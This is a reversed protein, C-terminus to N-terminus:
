AIQVIRASIKEDLRKYLWHMALTGVSLFASLNLLHVYDVRNGYLLIQRYSDILFALPHFTLFAQRLALDEIERVDWFVGSSFLLFLIGMNILIRMDYVFIVLIAVILGVFVGLLLQTLLVAFITLWQMSPSYGLALVLVLLVLVAPLQKYANVMVQSYPFIIKSVRTSALIKRNQFLSESSSSLTKSFWLFSIKGCLLFEVFNEGGRQLLLGFIVYFAFVFLLPELVWWIYSLQYRSAESRLIMEAQYWALSFSHPM